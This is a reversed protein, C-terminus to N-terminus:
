GDDIELTAIFALVREEGLCMWAPDNTAHFAFAAKARDLDGTERLLIPWLVDMDVMRQRHRWWMVILAWIGV